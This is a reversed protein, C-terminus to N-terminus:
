RTVAKPRPTKLIPISLPETKANSPQPTQMLPIDLEISPGPAVLTNSIQKVQKLALPSSAHSEIEHEDIIHFVQTMAGAVVEWLSKGEAM